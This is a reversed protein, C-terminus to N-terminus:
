VEKVIIVWDIDKTSGEQEVELIDRIRGDLVFSSFHGATNRRVLYLTTETSIRRNSQLVKSHSLGLELSYQLKRLIIFIPNPSNVSSLELKSSM